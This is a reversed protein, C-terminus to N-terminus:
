KNQTARQYSDPTSGSMEKILPESVAAGTDGAAGTDSM